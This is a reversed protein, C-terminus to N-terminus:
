RKPPAPRHRASEHRNQPGSREKEGSCRLGEHLRVMTCSNLATAEGSPWLALFPRPATIQGGDEQNWALCQEQVLKVGFFSVRVAPNSGAHRGTRLRANM